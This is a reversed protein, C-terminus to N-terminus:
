LVIKRSFKGIRLIYIRGPEPTLSTEVSSAKAMTVLKGQTDYLYIVTQVPINRIIIRGNEIRISYDDNIDNIGSTEDPYNIVRVTATASVGSGDMAEAVIQAVGSAKARVIGKSDVTVFQTGEKVYWNVKAYTAYSPMTTASLQLSTAEDCDITFDGANNGIIINEVFNVANADRVCVINSRSHINDTAKVMYAPSKRTSSSTLIEVAYYEANTPRNIDSYSSQNGSVEDILSMNDPTTGRLIRYSTIGRGEYKSWMLNISNGVGLNIMVHIPQHAVSMDSEGYGLEYSLRYRASKVSADSESDVYRTTEKSVSAILKYENIKSTERYVNIASVDSPYNSDWSIAFKNSDTDVTVDSIVPAANNEIVKVDKVISVSGYSTSLTRRLKLYGPKSFAIVKKQGDTSLTVNDFEAVNIFNGNNEAIEWNEIYEASSPLTIRANLLAETPFSFDAPITTHVFIRGIETGGATISKQGESNWTVFVNNGETRDIMAGKGFDIDSISLNTLMAIEESIGVMTASAMKLSASDAVKMTMMDSFESQLWMGDVAQVMVEYNGAPISSIPIFFRNSGILQTGVPLPVNSNGSNLPSYIYSNEGFADKHRISLNYRLTKSPTNDDTAMDWEIIMGEPQQSYRLACPASPARNPALHVNHAYSGYLGDKRRFLFDINYGNYASNSISVAEAKKGPYFYVFNDALVVDTCGNNDIDFCFTSPGFPNGSPCQVQTFDGDGWYIYVYESSKTYAGWLHEYDSTMIDMLGDGDFDAVVFDDGGYNKFEKMRSFTMNGNNRYVAFVDGESVIADILSDNDYDAFKVPQRPLGLSEYDLEYSSSYDSSFKVVKKDTFAEYIGDNDIDVPYTSGNVTLEVPLLESVTLSCGGENVLTRVAKSQFGVLDAMGDRNIDTPMWEMSNWDTFTENFINRVRSYQENENEAMIGILNYNEGGVIEYKGDEDFDMALMAVEWTAAEGRIPSVKVIRSFTNSQGNNYRATLSIKKEGPTEYLLKVAGANNEIVKAGDMEWEYAAQTDVDSDLKVIFEEGVAPTGSFIVKFGCSPTAKEFVTEASFQSGACNPDIAQVSIYYKGNKWSSIDFTRSLAYGSNGQRLDRRTGNALAHCPLIDDKGPASGIRLAYSLDASASEKDNGKKWNVTLLSTVPDFFITPADPKEPPNNINGEIEIVPMDKFDGSSLLHMRGTHKPDAILYDNKGRGSMVFGPYIMQPTTAIKGNRNIKYAVVDNDDLTAVAEYCGDGDIDLCEKFSLVGDLSTEQRRFTGNGQNSFLILYGYGKDSDPLTSALIDVDGDHDFDYTWVKDLNLNSMLTSEKHTNGATSVAVTLKKEKQVYSTYDMIGDGNFDRLSLKEGLYSIVFSGQGTNMMFLGSTTDVLDPLGDGNLDINVFSSAQKAPKPHIIWASMDLPNGPSSFLNIEKRVNAWEDPTYVRVTSIEVKGNADTTMLYRENDTIYKDHIEPLIFDIRGDSNYDVPEFYESASGSPYLKNLEEDPSVDEFAIFENSSLIKNQSYIDIYGDNNYDIWQPSATLIGSALISSDYGDLTFSRIANVGDGFKLWDLMGDGDVDYWFNKDTSITLKTGSVTQPKYRMDCVRVPVTHNDFPSEAGDQYMEEGMKIIDPLPGSEFTKYRVFIESTCAPIIYSKSRNRVGKFTYTKGNAKFYFLDITFTIGFEDSINDIEDIQVYRYGKIEPDPTIKYDIWAYPMTPDDNYEPWGWNEGITTLLSYDCKVQSIAGDEKIDCLILCGPLANSSGSKKFKIFRTSKPVTIISNLLSLQKFTTGDESCLIQVGRIENAECTTENLSVLMPRVMGSLDLEPSVIGDTSLNGSWGPYTQSGTAADNIPKVFIPYDYDTTEIIPPKPEDLPSGSDASIVFGSAATMALAMFTAVPLM